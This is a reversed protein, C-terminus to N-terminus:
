KRRRFILLSALGFGALAFTSPEPVVAAPLVSFGTSFYTSTGGGNATTNPAIGFAVSHGRVSSSAYDAGNYAVIVLTANPVNGPITFDTSGFFLGAFSDSFSATSGAGTGLVFSGGPIAIGSPDNFSAPTTSYYLGITFGAGSAINNGVTGGSGAGYTIYPYPGPAPTTATDLFVRSQAMVSAATALGLITAVLTKKM